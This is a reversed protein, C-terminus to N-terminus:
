TDYTILWGRGQLTILDANAAGGTPIAAPIQKIDLLGNDWLPSTGTALNSLLADVAATNLANSNLNIDIGDNSAGDRPIIDFSTLACGNFALDTHTETGTSLTVSTLATNQTVSIVGSMKLNNFNLTTISCLNLTFSTIAASNSTPLTFVNNATNSSLQATGTIDLGSIDITTILPNSLCRFSTVTETSTPPFSLSTLSPNGDIFVTGGVGTFNSFDISELIAHNSIQVRTFEEGSSPLLLSTMLDNNVIELAGGLKSFLSLNLSTIMPLNAFRVYNMLEASAPISITSM